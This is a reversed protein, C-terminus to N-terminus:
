DGKKRLKNEKGPEKYTVRKWKKKRERERTWKTEKREWNKERERDRQLNSEKMKREWNREKGKEKRLGM